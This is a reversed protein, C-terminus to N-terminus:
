RVGAPREAVILVRRIMCEVTAAMEALEARVGEVPQGAEAALDAVREMLLRDIQRHRREWDPTDDYALVRLGAAALLPRHDPVQPPRGAPQQHYDWTTVVLRGGPRVARALEKAAAAKDPTFLLADISMIAAAEGDALPLDEFSGEAVRVRDALGLREARRRVEDLGSAAIDVALYRAGTAAAVWLGPGGRGSGVDVLLEDQGVRVEEAIRALESRTTFSYPALEVPYEPGLVEQWVQTQVSSDDVEFTENFLEAWSRGDSAGSV